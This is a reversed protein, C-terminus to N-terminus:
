EVPWSRKVSFGMKDMLEQQQANVMPAFSEIDVNTLKGDKVIFEGDVIVDKVSSSQSSYVLGSVRDSAPLMEPRYPTHIVIDAAKGVELSGCEDQVGLAQAGNITGMEFVDESTFVPAKGHCENHVVATLYMQTFINLGDSWNGADTGLAINIGREHMEHFRARMAGLAHKCSAGACHVVSVRRKELIDLDNDSLHVMHVLTTGEDLVGLDEYYEVPTKGYMDIFQKIEAEYVSSHLHMQAGHARAIEKGASVLDGSCNQMGVLGVLAGVKRQAGRAYLKMQEELLEVCRKTSKNFVKLEPVFSDGLAYGSYGKIGVVNAGEFMEKAFFASGTDGFMTTGNVAMESTALMLSLKEDEGTINRVLPDEFEEWIQQGTFTDSVVSRTIHWAAHEHADVLGPHVVGGNCDFQKGDYEELVQANKGVADIRGASIAVAGKEVIRRREDMTLIYGNVLILDASKKNDM